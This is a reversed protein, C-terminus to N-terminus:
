KKSRQESLGKDYASVIDRKRSNAGKRWNPKSYAEGSAFWYMKRVVGFTNKVDTLNLQTSVPFKGVFVTDPYDFPYVYVEFDGIHGLIVKKDNKKMRKTDQKRKDGIRTVTRIFAGSEVTKTCSVPKTSNVVADSETM